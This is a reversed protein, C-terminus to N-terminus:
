RPDLATGLIVMNNVLLALGWWGVSNTQSNGSIYGNAIDSDSVVSVLLWVAADEEEFPLFSHNKTQESFWMNAAAMMRNVNEEVNSDGFPGERQWSFM